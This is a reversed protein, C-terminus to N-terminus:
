IDLVVTARWTGDRLEVAFRHLTVAKVDVVMPHRDLDIEEGRVVTHLKLIADSDAITLSSPRLLLRRADKYYIIEQLFDFLLLDLDANELIIELEQRPQITALDEVMVNTLADAAATFMEERTAGTAEFATDATAIDPLYRYPM